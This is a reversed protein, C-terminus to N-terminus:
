PTKHVTKIISNSPVNTTIREGAGIVCSDGIEIYEKTVANSGIFTQAGIHVGGNVIAGTAIHCHDAVTADHEVLAKTNIICNRGISAGANVITHHMVITGESIKAHRSIYALPSIIAPLDAGHSKLLEFLAKRRSPTKIQGITILFNKYKKVLYPIDKDTCIVEYNLIKEHLREALDIIGAIRYKAEQEIVDICSICHGGGGILIISQKV